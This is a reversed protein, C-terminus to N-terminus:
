GRLVKLWKQATATSIGLDKACGRVSCDPHARYYDTVLTKKDPRGANHANGEGMKNLVDKTSRCIALHVSQKRGNRKNPPIEINTLQEITRRPVTIYRADYAELAKMVDSATFHNDESTTRGDLLPVLSLADKELEDRPIDCKRAYVALALIAWYRHGVQVGIDKSRFRNAGEVIQRKWWDYLARNCTWTGRPKGAVIREQYWDPYKEKAEALSMTSQYMEPIALEPYRDGIGRLTTLSLREGTRYATVRTKKDKALSGVMRFSQTVSEFQPNAYLSTVDPQWIARTLSIRFKWLAKVVNPFLKIPEELLWYLHVGTGSSVVFTPRPVELLGKDLATFLHELGVQQGNEVLLGDLDFALAYLERANRQSMARGAYAVPSVIIFDDTKLLQSLPELDDCVTYRRVRGDGSVSVAIATYRGKTFSGRTDLRGAPFVERYFALPAVGDFRSGLWDSVSAM